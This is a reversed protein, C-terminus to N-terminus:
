PAPPPTNDLMDAIAQKIEDRREAPVWVELRVLGAKTRDRKLQQREAPTM